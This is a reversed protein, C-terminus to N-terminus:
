GSERKVIVGHDLMQLDVCNTVKQVNKSQLSNQITESDLIPVTVQIQEDWLGSMLHTEFHFM